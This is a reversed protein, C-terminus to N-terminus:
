PSVPMEPLDVGEPWASLQVRRSSPYRPSPPLPDLEHPPPIRALVALTGDSGDRAAGEGRMDGAAADDDDDDDGAVFHPTTFLISANFNEPYTAHTMLWMGALLIAGDLALFWLFPRSPCLDVGSGELLPCLLLAASVAAFLGSAMFSMVWLTAIADHGIHRRWFRENGDLWGRAHLADFVYSSGQGGNKRLNVDMATYSWFLLLPTLGVLGALLLYGRPSQPHDVVEAVAAGMYPVTGIAFLQTTMLLLNSSFYTEVRSLQRPPQSLEDGLKLLQEPYSSYLLPLCAVVFLVSSALDLTQRISPARLLSDLSYGAYLACGILWLWAAVLIDTGFHRRWWPLRRLAQSATSYNSVASEESRLSASGFSAKRRHGGGSTSSAGGGELLSRTPLEFSATRQRSAGGSDGLLRRPRGRQTFIPLIPLRKLARVMKRAWMLASVLLRVVLGARSDDEADDIGAPLAFHGVIERIQPSLRQFVAALSRAKERDGSLRIRGKVFEQAFRQESLLGRADKLFLRASAYWLVMEAPPRPATDDAAAAHRTVALRSGDCAVVWCSAETGVDVRASWPEDSHCPVGHVRDFLAPLVRSAASPGHNANAATRSAHASRARAAAGSPGSTEM